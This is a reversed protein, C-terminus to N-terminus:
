EGMVIELLLNLDDNNIKNDENLDASKYYYNKKVFLHNQLYSNLMSVDSITVDGDGNLDGKIVISLIKALKEGEYFTVRSGTGVKNNDNYNDVFVEFGTEKSLSTELFEENITKDLYIFNNDNKYSNIIVDKMKELVLIPVECTYGKYSIKISDDEKTLPNKSYKYDNIETAYYEDNFMGVVKIVLGKNDFIEGAQYTTKDPLHYMEIYEITIIDGLYNSSIEGYFFYGSTISFLLLLINIIIKKKM